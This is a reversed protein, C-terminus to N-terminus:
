LGNISGDQEKVVLGAQMVDADQVADVVRCDECMKLRQQSRESQFMVHASLKSMINNIISQTAFPKGCTVCNFPKEEHLIIKSRRQELDTLIRSQLHIAQEPCAAQCLGCQVCIAEIFVLRPADNGAQVATTPCVATCGMCLTCRESDVHIRGFPAGAPLAIQDTIDSANKVLHDIASYLVRRKEKNGAYKAVAIEPMAPMDLSALDDVCVTRVVGSEYYMGCLLSRSFSLQEEIASNVGDPVSGADVLIVASAGYALASLWVDMGVSALEELIIPLMGDPWEGVQEYDSASIFAIVPSQGGEDCYHKLILRIKVMMDEASPYVYRIAGTPCVADCVGGGQCLYPNVEIAEALSTIAQAPCTDICRTCGAQGSRSHACISADYDFYRPKEFTGKMEQLQNFTNLLSIEDTSDATFYGPPKIAMTLLPQKSLDLILDTQLIEFNPKGQVGIAITFEGLHGEIAIARGGAPVVVEGAEVSGGTLLVVPSLNHERLRPAFEMAEEDGIVVVRGRSQYEILDTSQVQLSAIKEFARDRATANITIKETM